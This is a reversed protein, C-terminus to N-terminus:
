SVLAREVFSHLANRSQRLWRAVLKDPWLALETWLEGRLAGTTDFLDGPLYEFPRPICASLDDSAPPSPIVVGFFRHGRRWQELVAPVDSDPKPGPMVGCLFLGVLITTYPSPMFARFGLDFPPVRSIRAELASSRPVSLGAEGSAILRRCRLNFTLLASLNDCECIECHPM